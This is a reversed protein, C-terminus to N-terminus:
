KRPDTAISLGTNIGVIVLDQWTTQASNFVSSGAPVFAGSRFRVSMPPENAHFVLQAGIQHMRPFYVAAFRPYSPISRRWIVPSARPSRM